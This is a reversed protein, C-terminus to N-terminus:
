EHWNFQEPSLGDDVNVMVAMAFDDVDNTIFTVHGDLFAVNVGGPHNSRPAASIYRAADFAACPMRELQAVEPEPCTYLIDPEKGNPAQTVGVSYFYPIYKPISMRNEGTMSQLCKYAGYVCNDAPRSPHMDYSLLSSGSWPLAWAGRQDLLNDRTRVESFLLTQSTGDTIQSLKQGYLSIAGAYAWTDVHVPNVFAAYNAKGFRVTRGSDPDTTEFFRGRASESPCLLSALQQSQPDYQNQTVRVKFDFQQYLADEELFPLLKAMWSYDTGSKLDIAQMYGYELKRAEEPPAFTGAAPLTRYNSEFDHLATGLQKLNNVCQARRAAERAQQIAPLLLAILIGIIAITILLEILTFGCDDPYSASRFGTEDHCDQGFFIDPFWETASSTTAACNCRNRVGGKCHGM